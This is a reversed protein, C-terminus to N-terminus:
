KGSPIPIRRASGIRRSYDSLGVTQSKVIPRLFKRVENWADAWHSIFSHGCNTFVCVRVPSKQSLAKLDKFAMKFDISRDRAGLISLVPINLRQLAKLTDDNRYSCWTAYSFGNWKHLSRPHRQIERIQRSLSRRELPGANSLEEKLWGRTGGGIMVVGRARSDRLAVQPALYAGESYGVFFIQGDAPVCERLTQLIDRIRLERRFSQEFMQTNINREFVGAKNIVLFNFRRSLDSGLLRKLESRSASNFEAASQPLFVLWDRSPLESRVMSAILTRGRSLSIQQVMNNGRM